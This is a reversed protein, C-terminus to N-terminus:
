GVLRVFPIMSLIVRLVLASVLVSVAEPIRFTSILWGTLGTFSMAGNFASSGGTQSSAFNMIIEIVDYLFNNLLLPVVTIFLFVMLLKFAIWKLVSDTFVRAVSTGMFSLIVSLGGM